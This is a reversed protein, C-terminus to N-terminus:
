CFGGEIERIAQSIYRRVWENSEVAIMQSLLPLAQSSGLHGLAIVAQTRVSAEKDDLLKILVSETREDGLSGLAMAAAVRIDSETDSLAAILADVAQAGGM